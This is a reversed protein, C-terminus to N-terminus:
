KLLENYYLEIFQKLKVYLQDTDYGNMVEVSIDTLAYLQFYLLAYIQEREFASSEDDEHILDLFKKGEYILDLDRLVFRIPYLNDSGVCKQRRKLIQIQSYYDITLITNKSKIKRDFNKNEDSLMFDGDLYKLQGINGKHPVYIEFIYDPDNLDQLLYSKSGKYNNIEAQTIQQFCESITPRPIIILNNLRLNLPNNDIYQVSYSQPLNDIIYDFINKPYPMFSSRHLGQRTDEWPFIAGPGLTIEYAGGDYKNELVYPYPGSLKHMIWSSHFNILKRNDENNDITFKKDSNVLPVMIVEDNMEIGKNPWEISEIYNM